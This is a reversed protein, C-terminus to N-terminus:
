HDVHQLDKRGHFSMKSNTLFTTGQAATHVARSCHIQSLFVAWKYGEKKRRASLFLARPVCCSGISCDDNYTSELGAGARIPLRDYLVGVAIRAEDHDWGMGQKRVLLIQHIEMVCANHRSGSRFPIYAYHDCKTRGYHDAGRQTRVVCTGARISASDSCLVHASDEVVAGVREGLIHHRRLKGAIAMDGRVEHARRAM